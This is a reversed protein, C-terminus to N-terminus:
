LRRQPYACLYGTRRLTRAVRHTAGLLDDVFRTHRYEPALRHEAPCPGDEFAGDEYLRLDDILFVDRSIDRLGALLRLERELPLRFEETKEELNAGAPLAVGPSHGDLWYIVPAEAPIEELAERLGRENKGHIITISPNKAFRLGAQLALAHKAEISYIQDFPYQAAFDVGKGLDTGTEILYRCGYQGILGALDFDSLVGM